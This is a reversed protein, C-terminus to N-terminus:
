TRPYRGKNQAYHKYKDILTQVLAAVFIFCVACLILSYIIIM